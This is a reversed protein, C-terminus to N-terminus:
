FEILGRGVREVAYPLGKSYAYTADILEDAIPTQWVERFLHGVSEKRLLQLTIEEHFFLGSVRKSDEETTGEVALMFFATDKLGEALEGFLTLSADDVWEINRLVLVIHMRRSVITLWKLVAEHVKAQEEESWPIWDSAALSLLGPFRSLADMLEEVEAVDSPEMVGLKGAGTMAFYLQEELHRRIDEPGDSPSLGLRSRFMEVFASYAVLKGYKSASHYLYFHDDPHEAIDRSTREVVRGKGTGVVGKLLVARHTKERLAWKHQLRIKALGESRGVLPVETDWGSLILLESRSTGAEVVVVQHAERYGESRAVLLYAGPEM